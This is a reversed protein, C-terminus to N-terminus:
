EEEMELHRYVFTDSTFLATLMENFSGDSGDYASEMAALTCADGRTEGRGMFYRFVQRIFCRKVYPSDAFRESLQVADSVPGDLSPDPMGSLTSSGDPPRGHDDARLFGAHNYIEFPMGLPNMLQHCGQCVPDATAEVVRDRATKDPASPGVVADVMVESLDPVPLCLLSERIWKGRHILSPDDEFNGGHAILWAPHTLVGAREDDPLTIWRSARNPYIDRDIGYVRHTETTSKWTSGVNAGFYDEYEDVSAPRTVGDPLTAAAYFTRTTMLERFVQTDNVLVRAIADDLQETLRSEHGYYGSLLNGFASGIPM